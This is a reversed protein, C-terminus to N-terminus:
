VSGAAADPAAEAGEAGGGGGEAAEEAAERGEQDGVWVGSASTALGKAMVRLLALQYSPM